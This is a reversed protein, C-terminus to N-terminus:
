YRAWAAAATPFAFPKKKQPGNPANIMRGYRSLEKGSIYVPM